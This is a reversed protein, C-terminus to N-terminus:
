IAIVDYHARHRRFDGAYKSFRKNLRLNFFIDFSRRVPRQLHFVGTVPSKGACLALLASITEM